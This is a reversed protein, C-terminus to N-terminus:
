QCNGSSINCTKGQAACNRCVYDTPASMNLNRTGCCVDKHICATIYQRYNNACFNHGNTGTGNERGICYGGSKYKYGLSSCNFVSSSPLCAFYKGAGGQSVRKYNDVCQTPNCAYDSVTYNYWSKTLLEGALVGPIGACAPIVCANKDYNLKNGNPCECNGNNCVSQPGTCSKTATSNYAGCSSSTNPTCSKKNSAIHYGNSCSTVYCSGSNTDCAANTVASPRWTNCNVASQGAGLNSPACSTVSNKVCKSIKGSGDYEPHEGTNCATIHCTGNDCYGNAHLSKCSKCNNGCKEDTNVCLKKSEQMVTCQNSPCETYQCTGNACFMTEGCINGCTGCHNNDSNLDTCVPNFETGCNTKNEACTYSCAPTGENDVCHYSDINPFLHNACDNDCSSCHHPDLKSVCTNQDDIICLNELTEDCSTVECHYTSESLFRCEENDRCETYECHVGDELLQVNCSDNDSPIRCRGTGEKSLCWIGDHCICQSDHCFGGFGCNVGEFNESESDPDNCLGRAGCHEDSIEPVICKDGCRIDGERCTCSYKGKEDKECARKDEYETCDDGGYNELSCDYAGCTIKSSPDICEGSCQLSDDACRCTYKGDSNAKCTSFINFLSCNEGGYNTEADCTSAGCTNPSAPDICEFEEAASDGGESESNDSKIPCKVQGKACEIKTRTDKECHYFTFGKVSETKCKPYEPPCYRKNFYNSFDFEIPNGDEDVQDEFTCSFAHEASCTQHNEIYNLAGAKDLGPCAEGYEVPDSLICGTLLSLPLIGFFLAKTKM